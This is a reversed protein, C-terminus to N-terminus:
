RTRFEFPLRGFLRIMDTQNRAGTKGLISSIHTRVTRIGVGAQGAYDGPTQGALLARVVRCEAPTLDFMARLVDDPLGGTRDPDNVLLLAAPRDPHLDDLELKEGTGALPIAYLTLPMAHPRPIAVADAPAFGEGSVTALVQGTARALRTEIRPDTACVRGGRIDLGNRPDSVIRAAEGNIDSVTGGRDIMIMGTTSYAFARTEAASPVPRTLRLHIKMAQSLHPALRHMLAIEDPSAHDQGLPRQVSFVSFLRENSILNASIFYKYGQPILFDNYFEDRDIEAETLIEHDFGVHGEPRRAGFPARPSVAAFHDVYLDLADAEAGENHFFVPRGTNKELVEFHAFDSDFLSGVSRLAQSWFAGDLTSAYIDGLADGFRDQQTM